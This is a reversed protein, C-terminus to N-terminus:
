RDRGARIGSRHRDQPSSVRRATPAPMGTPQLREPGPPVELTRIFSPLLPLLPLSAALRSDESVPNLISRKLFGSQRAAKCGQQFLRLSISVAISDKVADEGMSNGAGAAGGGPAGQCRRLGGFIAGNRAAGLVCYGYVVLKTMMRPDYPPQGRKESGYVEDTASLDLQDIVDSVVYALHNEPLWKGCARRCCCVM